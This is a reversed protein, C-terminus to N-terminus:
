IIINLNAFEGFHKKAILNYAEAAEAETNYRKALIRQGNYKLQANWKNRARDYSVGLYKSSSNKHSTTYIKNDDKSCIRLNSKINNLGDHDIHDVVKEKDVCKMIVRHLYIEYPENSKLIGKKKNRRAYIAGNLEIAQWNFQSVWYYDDDDVMAHYGKTLPLLKM